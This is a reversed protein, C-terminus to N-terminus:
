NHADMIDSKKWEVEDGVDYDWGTVFILFYARRIGMWKMARDLMGEEEDRM